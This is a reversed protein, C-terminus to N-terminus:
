KTPPPPLAHGGKLVSVPYYEKEWVRKAPELPDCGSAGMPDQPVLEWCCSNGRCLPSPSSLEQLLYFLLGKFRAEKDKNLVEYHNTTYDCCQSVLALM